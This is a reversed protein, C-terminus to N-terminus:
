QAKTWALQDVDRFTELRQDLQLTPLSPVRRLETVPVERIDTRMIEQSRACAGNLSELRYVKGDWLVM